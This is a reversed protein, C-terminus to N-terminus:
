KKNWPPNFMSILIREIMSATNADKTEVWRVSINEKIYNRRELRDPFQSKYARQIAHKDDGSLHKSLLRDKLGGSGKAEGIYSLIGDHNYIIYTGPKKSPQAVAFLVPDMEFLSELYTEIEPLLTALKAQWHSM